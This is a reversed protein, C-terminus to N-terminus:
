KKEKYGKEFIEFETRLEDSKMKYDAALKDIAEHKREEESQIQEVLQSQRAAVEQNFQEELAKKQREYQSQLTTLSKETATLEENFHREMAAM